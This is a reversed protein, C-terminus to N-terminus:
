GEPQGVPGPRLGFAAGRPAGHEREAAARPPAEGLSECIPCGDGEARIVVFSLAELADLEDMSHWEM